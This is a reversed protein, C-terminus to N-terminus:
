EFEVKTVKIMKKGDKESVEGTVTGKKAEQCIASHTKKYDKSGAKDFWYVVDKGDESVKVVTHCSASEKLDCKACTVTGKLTKEDGARVGVVLALIVAFGLLTSWAAKM